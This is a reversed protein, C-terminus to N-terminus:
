CPRMSRLCPMPTASRRTPSSRAGAVMTNLWERVYRENLGSAEAIQASTSPLLKALVEFLGTQHGISTMLALTGGNLISTMTQTFAEVKPQDLEPM